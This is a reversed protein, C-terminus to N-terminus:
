PAVFTQPGNVVVIDWYYNFPIKHAYTLDGANTTVKVNATVTKISDIWDAATLKRAGTPAHNRLIAKLGFVMITASSSPLNVDPRLEVPIDFWCYGPAAQVGNSSFTTRCDTLIQDTASQTGKPFDSPLMFHNVKGNANVEVVWFDPSVPNNGSDKTPNFWMVRYGGLTNPIPSGDLNRSRKDIVVDQPPLMGLASTADGMGGSQDVPPLGTSDSLWTRSIVAGSSINYFPTFATWYFRGV